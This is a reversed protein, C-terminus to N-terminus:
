PKVEATRSPSTTQKANRGQHQLVEYLLDPRRGPKCRPRTSSRRTTSTRPRWRAASSSTAAPLTRRVEVDIPKNTYNRVRQAYLTHDDWGVVTSNVEIQVGPEDVRKFVNAGSSDADLHQGALDAAQGVRLDGRPGAGPEVRDQRRHPHVQDHQAGPLLPRGPREPPLRPGHRGAAAHHRAEVGQRETLLYM